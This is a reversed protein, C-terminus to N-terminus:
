LMSKHNEIIGENGLIIPKVEGFGELVHQHCTFLLVQNERSLEKILSIANSLRGSDFNVFSDDIIFPFSQSPHMTNALSFRLAIYLQESTAQSLENPKYRVGKDNEVIFGDVENDLYIRKYKRDTLISFYHEARKMVKPLRLTRYHDVTKALIDKAVALTAWNKAYNKVLSNSAEYSYLLDAYTGGEELEQIRHNIASLQGQREKEIAQLRTIEASMEEILVEYNTEINCIKVLEGFRELQALLLNMREKLERATENAQGKARFEEENSIKAIDWLVQIEKQLHEIEMTLKVIQEESDKIKADIQLLQEYKKKEEQLLVAMQDVKISSQDEINIQKAVTYVKSQFNSIENQLEVKAKTLKQKNLVKEKIAELIQFADLLRENSIQMPLGYTKKINTAKEELAFGSKEWEEFDKFVKDLARENQLHSAKEIEIQQRAHTDRILIATLEEHDSYNSHTLQEKIAELKKLLRERDEQFEHIFSSSMQSTVTKGVPWMLVGLVTLIGGIIWEKTVYFYISIILLIFGIGYFLRTYKHKNESEKSTMRQIKQDIRKVEEEILLKESELNDRSTYQRKKKEYRKRQDEPLVQQKLDSLKQESHELAEKVQTFNNDLFHKKQRHRVTESVIESFMDKATIGLNLKLVDTETLSFNIRDILQNLEDEIEQLEKSVLKFRNEKETFLSKNEVLELIRQENEIYQKAFRIKNKEKNWELIQGNIATLQAQYPKIQAHLQELRKLGDEPYPEFAPLSQLRNQLTQYEEVIPQISQLKESEQIKQKISNKQSDYSVLEKEIQQQENLLSEYESNKEQWRTVKAHEEKIRILEMNLPPNKGKPKYLGDMEKVLKNQLELLADTGVTGASFLFRGVDESKLNHVGQLGHINFSYINQFLNKDMGQFLESIFEEGKVTGDPMFVSVDGAAKGPLREIMIAGYEDTQLILKGGYKTGTKPIYRQENQQKTPFGFIASHIFSMLTSKGAENQGFFVQVNPSFNGLELNDLKGYGYVQVGIIKM